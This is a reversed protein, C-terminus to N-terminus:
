VIARAERVRRRVNVPEANGERACTLVVEAVAATDDAATLELERCVDEFVETLATLAAGRFESNTLLPHVM